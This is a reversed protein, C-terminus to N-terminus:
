RMLPTALLRTAIFRHSGSRTWSATRLRCYPRGRQDERVCRGVVVLLSVGLWAVHERVEDGAVEVVSAIQQGDDVPEVAQASRIQEANAERM